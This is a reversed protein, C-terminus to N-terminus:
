DLDVARVYFVLTKSVSECSCIIYMYMYMYM